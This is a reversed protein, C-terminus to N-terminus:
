GTPTTHQDRLQELEAQAAAARASAERLQAYLDAILALIANPDM